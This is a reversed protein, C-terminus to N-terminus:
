TFARGLVNDEVWKNVGNRWKIIFNRNAEDTTSTFIPIPFNFNSDNMFLASIVGRLYFLGDSKQYVLGSGIDAPVFEHQKSISCFEDYQIKQINLSRCYENSELKISKTVRALSGTEDKDWAVIHGIEEDLKGMNDDLCISRVTDSFAIYMGVVLLVITNLRYFRHVDFMQVHSPEGSSFDRYYKGVAIKIHLGVGSMEGLESLGGGLCSHATVVMFNSILTGVCHQIWQGDKLLYIVAHWPHEYLVNTISDKKDTSSDNNFVLGCQFQCGNWKEWKGNELCIKQQTTREDPTLNRSSVCRVTITTGPLSPQQCSVPVGEPTTCSHLENYIDQIANCKKQECTHDSPYWQGAFCVAFDEKIIKNTDYCKVKVISQGSGEISEKPDYKKGYFSILLAVMFYSNHFM